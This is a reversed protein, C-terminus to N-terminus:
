GQIGRDGVVGVQCLSEKANTLETVFIDESDKAQAFHPCYTKSSPSPLVSLLSLLSSSIHSTGSSPIICPIFPM